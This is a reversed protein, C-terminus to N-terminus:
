CADCRNWEFPAPMMVIGRQDVECRVYRVPVIGCRSCYGSDMGTYATTTSVYVGLGCYECVAQIHEARM